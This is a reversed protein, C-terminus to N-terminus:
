KRLWKALLVRQYLDVDLYSEIPYVKFSSGIFLDTRKIKTVKIRRRSATSSRHPGSPTQM